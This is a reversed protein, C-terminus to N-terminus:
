GVCYLRYLILIVIAVTGVVYALLIKVKAGFRKRQRRVPRVSERLGVVRNRLQPPLKNSYRNWLRAVLLVLRPKAATLVPKITRNSLRLLADKSAGRTGTATEVFRIEVYVFGALVAATYLTGLQPPIWVLAVYLVAIFWVAYLFYYGMFFAAFVHCFTRFREGRKGQFWDESFYFFAFIVYVIWTKILSELLPVDYVTLHPVSNCPFNFFFDELKESSTWILAYMTALISALIATIGLLVLARREESKM